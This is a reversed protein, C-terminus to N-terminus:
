ARLTVQIGESADGFLDDGFLPLLLMVQQGVVEFGDQVAARLSRRRRREPIQGCGDGLVPLPADGQQRDALRNPAELIDHQGRIVQGGDLLVKAFM